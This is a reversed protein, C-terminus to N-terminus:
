EGDQQSKLQQKYQAFKVKAKEEPTEPEYKPISRGTLKLHKKYEEFDSQESM